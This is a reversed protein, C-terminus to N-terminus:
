VVFGFVDKNVFTNPNHTIPEAAAGESDPMDENLRALVKESFAKKNSKCEWLVDQVDKLVANYLTDLRINHTSCRDEGGKRVKSNVCVFYPSKNKPCAIQMTAGCDACKLLDRFINETRKEKVERKRSGLKAQVDDWLEQSIIPEHANECVCWDAEDVKVIKKSKFNVKRKKGHVIKGLYVENHLLSNISSKGWGYPNPNSYDGKNYERLATPSLVQHEYLHIMIQTEILVSMGDNMDDDSLRCYCAAKYM